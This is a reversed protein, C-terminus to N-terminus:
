AAEGHHKIKWLATKMAEVDGRNRWLMAAVERGPVGHKALFAEEDGADHLRDHCGQRTGPVVCLPIAYKDAAKRGTGREKPDDPQLLHHANIPRNEAGCVCCPLKRVNALHNADMGDRVKHKHAPMDKRIRPAIKPM